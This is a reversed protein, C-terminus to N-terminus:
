TSTGINMYYTGHADVRTNKCSTTGLYILANTQLMITYTAVPVRLEHLYTYTSMPTSIGRRKKKRKKTRKRDLAPVLVIIKNCVVAVYTTPVYVYYM